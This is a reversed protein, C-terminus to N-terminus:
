CGTGCIKCRATTAGGGAYSNCIVDVLAVINPTTPYAKNLGFRSAGQKQLGESGYSTVGMVVNPNTATGLSVTSSVGGGFNVLWPGGSSGGTQASGMEM